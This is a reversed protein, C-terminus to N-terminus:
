VLHTNRGDILSPSLRQYLSLSPHSIPSFPSQIESFILRRTICTKRGAVKKRLKAHQLGPFGPVFRLPSPDCKMPHHNNLTRRPCFQHLQQRVAWSILSGSVARLTPVSASWSPGARASTSSPIAVAIPTQPHHM